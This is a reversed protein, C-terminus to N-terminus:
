YWLFGGPKAPPYNSLKWDWQGRSGFLVLDDGFDFAAEGDDGIGLGLDVGVEVAGVAQAM